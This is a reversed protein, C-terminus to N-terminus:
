QQALYVYLNNLIKKTKFLKKRLVLVGLSLKQIIPLEQQFKKQTQQNKNQQDPYLRDQQAPIKQRVSTNTNEPRVVTKQSRVTAANVNNVCLFVSLFVIFIKRM